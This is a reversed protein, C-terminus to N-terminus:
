RRKKASHTPKNGGLFIRLQYLILGGFAYGLIMVCILTLSLNLVQFPDLCTYPTCFSNVPSTSRFFLSAPFYILTLVTLFIFMRKISVFLSVLLGIAVSLFFLVTMYVSTLLDM